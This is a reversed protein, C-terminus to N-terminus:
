SGASFPPLLRQPDIPTGNRRIEFHLQPQRRPGIGMSAIRQGRSVMQGQTVTVADTHGYASLYTDNHKIIVLQGYGVLGTGVYVVRGDAVAVVQQGGSGRMSIGTSIGERSGFRAGICGETPWVWEPAPLVPPPSLPVVGTRETSRRPSAGNGGRGASEGSPRLSIRQGAYILDPNGLANWRALDRHDIGYRWAITYLTEGRSVVHTRTEYNVLSPRCAAVLSLILLLFVARLVVAM